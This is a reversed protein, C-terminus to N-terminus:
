KGEQLLRCKRVNAEGRRGSRAASVANRTRSERSPVARVSWKRGSREPTFRTAEIDGLRQV